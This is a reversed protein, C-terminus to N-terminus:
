LRVQIRIAGTENWRLLQEAHAAFDHFAADGPRGFHYRDNTEHSACRGSLPDATYYYGCARKTGASPPPARRHDRPSALGGIHSVGYVDVHECSRQTAALTATRPRAAEPHAFDM